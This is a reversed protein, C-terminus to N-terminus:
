NKFFGVFQTPAFVMNRPVHVFGVGISVNHLFNTTNKFVREFCWHDYDEFRERVSCAVSRLCPSHNHCAPKSRLCDLEPSNLLSSECQECVM